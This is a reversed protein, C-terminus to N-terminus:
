WWWCGRGWGGGDTERDPPPLEGLPKTGLWSRTQWWRNRSWTARWSRTSSAAEGLLKTGVSSCSGTWWWRERERERRERRSSLPMKTFHSAQNPSPWWGPGTWEWILPWLWQQASGVCGLELCLRLLSTSMQAWVLNTMKGVHFFDFFLLYHVSWRQGM